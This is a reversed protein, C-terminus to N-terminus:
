HVEGAARREFALKLQIVDLVNLREVTAIHRIADSVGCGSSDIMRDMDALMGALVYPDLEDM